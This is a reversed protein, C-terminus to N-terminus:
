TWNHPPEPAVTLAEVWQSHGLKCSHSFFCCIFSVMAAQWGLTHSLAKEQSDLLHCWLKTRCEARCIKDGPRAPAAMSQEPSM